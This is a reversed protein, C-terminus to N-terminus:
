PQWLEGQAPVLESPSCHGVTVLSQKSEARTAIAGAEDIFYEDTLLHMLGREHIRHALTTLERWNHRVFLSLAKSDVYVGLEKRVLDRLKDEPVPAQTIPGDCM